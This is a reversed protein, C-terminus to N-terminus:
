DGKCVPPAQEGEGRLLWLSGAVMACAAWLGLTPREEFILVGALVGTALSIIGGFSVFVASETKLLYVSILA